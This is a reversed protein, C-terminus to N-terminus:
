QQAAKIAACAADAESCTTAPTAPMPKYDFHHLGVPEGSEFRDNWNLQYDLANADDPFKENAAYPYASM